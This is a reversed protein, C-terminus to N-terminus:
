DTANTTLDKRTEDLFDALKDPDEGDYGEIVFRLCKGPTNLYPPSSKPLLM